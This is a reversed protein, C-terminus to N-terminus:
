IESAQNISSFKGKGKQKALLIVQAEGLDIGTIEMLAKAKRLNERTLEHEKLWGENLAEEVVYADSYKKAKGRDIVELRVEAPIQM